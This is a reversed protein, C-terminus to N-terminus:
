QDSFDDVASIFDNYLSKLGLVNWGVMTSAFNDRIKPILQTRNKLHQGSEKDVFDSYLLPSIKDAIKEQM